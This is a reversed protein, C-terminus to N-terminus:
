MGAFIAAGDGYQPSFAIKLLGIWGCLGIISWRCRTHIVAATRGDGLGSYQLPASPLTKAL